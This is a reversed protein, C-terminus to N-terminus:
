AHPSIKAEPWTRRLINQHRTTSVSYKVDPIVTSGLRTEWGIPTGHSTVVYHVLHNNYDERLRTAWELPLLGFYLGTDINIRLGALKSAQFDRENKIAIPALNLPIYDM